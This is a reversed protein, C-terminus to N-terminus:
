LKALSEAIGAIRSNSSIFDNETQNKLKQFEIDTILENQVKEIQADISKEVELINVGM